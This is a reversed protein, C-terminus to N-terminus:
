RQNADQERNQLVQLIDDAQRASASFPPLSQKARTAHFRAQQTDGTRLAKEAYALSALGEEGLQHRAQGLLHWALVSDPDVQTVFSLNEVAATLRNDGGLGVQAHGLALRLLPSRPDLSAARQYSPEAEALRGNEFLMQGRLEHFYPDSPYEAILSDILPLARDLDPLRYLAIARGYRGTLSTDSAPFRRLATQRPELFAQLKARMRDHKLRLDASWPNDSHPSRNVHRRITAIREETLPHTRVYPDQSASILVEQGRLKNFFELLGRASYRNADLLRLAAQDAASEQGRTFRLINRVAVQQGGVLGALAVDPRGSIVALATGILGSIITTNLAQDFQEPFSVLHGGAIHGVEHALVGIVQGPHDAAAILGTHMFLNQGGAVFANLSRDNVIIIDVANPDLGASRFLPTAFERLTHEIEADRVLKIQRAEAPKMGLAVMLFTAGLM